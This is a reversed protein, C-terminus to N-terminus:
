GDRPFSVDSPAELAPRGAPVRGFSGVNAVLVRELWDFTSLHGM